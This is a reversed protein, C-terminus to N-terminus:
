FKWTVGISVMSNTFDYGANNGAPLRTWEFNLGAGNRLDLDGGIGLSLGNDRTEGEGFNRRLNVGAVGGVAYLSFQRSLPLSGKLYAGYFSRVEAHFGGDSYGGLGTGARGEIALNPALPVGIRLVGLAPTLSDIGEENYDLLGLNMGVYPRSYDDDDRRGYGRDYHGAAMVSAAMSLGTALLLVKASRKM